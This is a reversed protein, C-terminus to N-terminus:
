QIQEWTCDVNYLGLQGKVAFPKKLVRVNSLFWSCAKDYVPCCAKEEDEKTMPKCDVIDAVVCALGAYKGFPLKSGVLLVPGRYVTTWKRTEITKKGEAILSIWPEKISLAKM